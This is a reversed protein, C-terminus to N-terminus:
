RALLRTRDVAHACSRLERSPCLRPMSITKAQEPTLRAFWLAVLRQNNNNTNTNTNSAMSSGLQSSRQVFVLLFCGAELNLLRPLFAM